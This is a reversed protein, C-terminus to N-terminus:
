IATGTSGCNNDTGSHLTSSEGINGLFFLSPLIIVFWNRNWVIFTRFIIFADAVGTARAWCASVYIGIISNPPGFDLGPNNLAVISRVNDM